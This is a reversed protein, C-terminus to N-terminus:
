PQLRARYTGPPHGTLAWHTRAPASAASCVTGAELQLFPTPKLPFRALCVESYVPLLTRSPESAEGQSGRPQAPSHRKPLISLWVLGLGKGASPVTLQRVETDTPWSGDVQFSSTSPACSLTEPDGGIRPHHQRGLPQQGCLFRGLDPGTCTSWQM